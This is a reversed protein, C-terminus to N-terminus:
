FRLRTELIIQRPDFTNMNHSGYTSANQSEGATVGQAAIDTVQINGLGMSYSGPRFQTHNLANTVNAMFSLNYRERIRFDRSLTLDLNNRGPGRLNGYDIANTGWWYVNAQHGGNATTLTEGVFADPNYKLYCQACPTYTRGDPLTVSTKGNYWGQLNQPLVLPENPATNRDPRGNLSGGNLGTPSLPIGVQWSFVSGIRWQGLAARAVRNSLELQGGKGFPLEYTATVVVRHPVDAYSLKKNNNDNLLDIVGNAGGGGNSGVNNAFGQADQLETYGTDTSKSWTYNADVMFGHSFSRRVRLQLSNYDSFGNDGQVTDSLLPLYPYYLDAQPITRQALAGVFPLLPGTAPQLPNQVQLGAPNTGANTSIYTQKWAALVSAPVLQNNQIAYRSQFLHVGHSGSYGASVFWDRSLQHELFFNWMQVRGPRESNVNFFAGGNGYIQPASSNAGPPVIILTPQPDWFNGVLLGNPNTGYPLIQTGPTFAGQNYAFPGDYWGTNNAGYAIGYGGRVVWRGKNDVRYAAGLRPGFNTWTPKWLNRSNGQYGPFVIVGRYPSNLPSGAATFLSPQTLDIATSRNFRDTPAPQFEWRLGLNLTLKSTARWDNQSFVGMYKSTLAPRSSPSPPVLWGGGGTLLNAGSFGTQSVNNNNTSVGAATINQVTCNCGGNQYDAANFQYDTYNGQYARYEGGAKLSLKGHIKTISGTLSSNTQREQKGSYQAWPTNTFFSGGPTGIDPAAGFQPMVAQVSAPIGLANYDSATFPRPPLNVSNSHIRNVGARIDLLLTPTLIVTDGIQVYPNDDAINRAPTGGSNSTPQSFWQPDPFPSPTNISGISVGGSAYVSHRGRRYDLRNNNNSRSFSRVKQTYFNNTGFADIPARNPLPYISMIKLAYPSPNPIVNGPYPARTYVTASTQSVSNPDYIVASAPVGNAGSILTQSFDGVRQQATPVTWLWQPTDNHRLIDYSTFIFLKDKLIPGGITGGFDNVRFKARAISNANNSFTNANFSENRLTDHLSGNWHNTGSKTSMKIAGMGRSQDATFNNSVVRVEQLSDVNPLVAAENWAGSTVSLGDLQISASFASAGGVNLASQWRRGDYGIGFSQFATTDSLEARGVVGALLSAYYLPNQNANPVSGIVDAGVASEVTTSDSQLQDAAAIVSVQTAVTSLQLAVDTRVTSEPVVNVGTVKFVPFGPATVTVTYAGAKLYPV